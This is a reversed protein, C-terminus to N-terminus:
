IMKKIEEVNKMDDHLGYMLGSIICEGIEVFKASHGRKKKAAKRKRERRKKERWMGWKQRLSLNKSIWDLSNKLDYYKITEKAYLEWASDPSHLTIESQFDNNAKNQLVTEFNEALDEISNFDYYHNDYFYELADALDEPNEEIIERIKSIEKEARKFIYSFEAYLNHKGEAYEFWNEMNRKARSIDNELFHMREYLSFEM